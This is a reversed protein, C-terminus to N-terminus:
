VVKPVCLNVARQWRLLSMSRSTRFFMIEATDAPLYQQHRANLEKLKREFYELQRVPTKETFLREISNDENMICYKAYTSGIDIGIKFM